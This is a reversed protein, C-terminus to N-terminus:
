NSDPNRSGRTRWAALDISDVVFAVHGDCAVVNVGGSHNSSATSIADSLSNRNLCSPQNPTSVHNFLTIAMNGRAWPFGRRFTDGRWGAQAPNKPLASCNGVFADLETASYSRPLEWAVSLRGGIGDGSKAEAILSTNALGRSVDSPRVPGSHPNGGHTGDDYRFIGDMGNLPWWTGSNGFYNTSAWTKAPSGVKRIRPASESPCRWIPLETGSLSSNDEPAVSLDVRELLAAQELFGLIAVSYGYGRVAGHPFCGYQSEYNAVALGIQRLNSSCGLKRSSERAQQVAALTLSGVVGSIAIVVLLETM